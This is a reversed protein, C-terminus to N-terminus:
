KVIRPLEKMLAEQAKEMAYSVLQAEDGLLPRKPDHVGAYPVNSGLKVRGKRLEYLQDSGSPSYNYGSLKGPKFSDRLRGTKVLILKEAAVKAGLRAKILGVLKSVKGKKKFGKTPEWQVGFEDTNGKSKMVYNKYAKEYFAHAFTAWYLNRLKELEPSVKKGTLINPLDRVLGRLYFSTKKTNIRGLAM